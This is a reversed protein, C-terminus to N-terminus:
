AQAGLAGRDPRRAPDQLAPARRLAARLLRCNVGWAAYSGAVFLAMLGDFNLGQFFGHITFFLFMPLLLPHSSASIIGTKIVALQWCLMTGLGVAGLELIATLYLNHSQFGVPDKTSDGVFVLKRMGSQETVRMVNQLGTGFEWYNPIQQWLYVWMAARIASSQDFDETFPSMMRESVSASGFKVVLTSAAVFFLLVIAAAKFRAKIGRGQLVRFLSYCGIFSIFSTRSGTEALFILGMTGIILVAIKSGPIVLKSTFLLLAAGSVCALDNANLGLSEGLRPDSATAFWLIPAAGLVGFAFYQLTRYIAYESLKPLVCLMLAFCSANCLVVLAGAPDTTRPLQALIVAAFLWAASQGPLRPSRQPLKRCTFYMVIAIALLAYTPTTYGIVSNTALVKLPLYTAAYWSITHSPYKAAAISAAIVIAITIAINPVYTPGYGVVLVALSTLVLSYVAVLSCTFFSQKNRAGAPAVQYHGASNHQESDKM